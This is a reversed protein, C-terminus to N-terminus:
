PAAQPNSVPTLSVSIHASPINIRVSQSPPTGNVEVQAVTEVGRLVQRRYGGPFDQQRLTLGHLAPGLAAQPALAMEVTALLLDGRWPGDAPQSVIRQGDYSVTFLTPGMLSSTVLRLSTADIETQSIFSQEDDGRKFAIIQVTTQAPLSAPSLLCLAAGPGFGVCPTSSNFSACGTLALLLLSPHLFERM